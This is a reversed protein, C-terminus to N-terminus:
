EELLGRKRLRELSAKVEDESVSAAASAEPPVPAPRPAAGAASRSPAAFAQSAMPSAACPAMAPAAPMAHARAFLRDIQRDELAAQAVLQEYVRRDIALQGFVRRGVAEVVAIAAEPTPAAQYTGGTSTALRHFAKELIPDHVPFNSPIMGLAYLFLGAGELGKALESLTWGSPDTTPFRDPHPAGDAGCAHPPADGILVIIRFARPRFPLRRICADLGAFVAEAADTNTSRSGVSLGSLTRHIDPDEVLFPHVEVPSEGELDPGDHDRYGVIAVRLDAAAASRLGALITVVHRRAAEIFPQMSATLDVCFVLDIQSLEKM